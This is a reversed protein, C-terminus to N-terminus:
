SSGMGSLLIWISFVNVVLRLSQLCPVSLAKGSAGWPGTVLPHAVVTWQSVLGDIRPDTRASASASMNYMAHASRGPILQQHGREMELQSGIGPPGACQGLM